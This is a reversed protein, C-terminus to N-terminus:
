KITSGCNCGQMGRSPTIDHVAMKDDAYHKYEPDDVPLYKVKCTDKIKNELEKKLKQLKESDLKHDGCWDMEWTVPWGGLTPANKRCRGIRGKTPSKFGPNKLVHWMCTKCRMTKSRHEWNDENEIKSLSKYTKSTADIIDNDHGRYRNDMEDEIMRLAPGNTTAKYLHMLDRTKLNKIGGAEELKKHIEDKKESM